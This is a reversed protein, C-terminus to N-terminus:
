ISPHGKKVEVLLSLVVANGKGTVVITFSTTLVIPVIKSVLYM